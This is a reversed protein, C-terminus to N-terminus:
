KFLADVQKSILQKKYGTIEPGVEKGDKFFHFSPIHKVGFDASFKELREDTTDVSAFTVNKREGALKNYFPAIMKCKGCWPAYFDVVLNKSSAVLEKFQKETKVEVVDKGMLVEDAPSETAGSEFYDLSSKPNITKEGPKWNAPCVEGHEAVFQFAQILRLTEDVSRGVPLNNMTIQEIVGQPNIIFLGRCAVGLDNVLVGYKSAIEKTNDGIIPIKMSGLGGKKRPTKNWALHSEVTDCSCAILKTNLKEFEEARDSFAIIETPCM